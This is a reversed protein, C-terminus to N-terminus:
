SAARRAILVVKHTQHYARAFPLVKRPLGLWRYDLEEDVVLDFGRKQLLKRMPEVDADTFWKRGLAVAIFIMGNPAVLDLLKSLVFVHDALHPLVDSLLVLDFSSPVGPEADPGQFHKPADDLHSRVLRAYHGTREARRLANEAIDVGVVKEFSARRALLDLFDGGGCALDLVTKVGGCLPALLDIKAHEIPTAQVDWPPADATAWIRNFIEDAKAKTARYM